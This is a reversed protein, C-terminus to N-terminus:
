GGRKTYSRIVLSAYLAIKNALKPIRVSLKSTFSWAGSANQGVAGIAVAFDTSAIRTVNSTINAQTGGPGLEPLSADFFYHRPKSPDIFYELPTNGTGTVTVAGPTM